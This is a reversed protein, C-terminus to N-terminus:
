APRSLPVAADRAHGGGAPGGRRGPTRFGQPMREVAVNLSDSSARRDRCSPWATPMVPSWGSGSTTRTSPHGIASIPMCPFPDSSWRPDTPDFVPRDPPHGLTGDSPGDPPVAAPPSPAGRSPPDGGGITGLRSSPRDSTRPGSPTPYETSSPHTTRTPPEPPRNPTPRSTQTRPTEPYRPSKEMSIEASRRSHERRLRLPRTMDCGTTSM